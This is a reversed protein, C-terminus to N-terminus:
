YPCIYLSNINDNYSTGTVGYIPNDTDPDDGNPCSQSDTSATQQTGRSFDGTCDDATYVQISSRILDVLSFSSIGDPQMFAPQTLSRTVSM